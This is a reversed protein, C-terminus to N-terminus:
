KEKQVLMLLKSMPLYKNKTKEQWAAFTTEKKTAFFM